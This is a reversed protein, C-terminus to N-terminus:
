ASRLALVVPQAARARFQRLFVVGCSADASFTITTAATAGVQPARRDLEQHVPILSPEACDAATGDKLADTIAQELTM